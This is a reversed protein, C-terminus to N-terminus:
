CYLHQDCIVLVSCSLHRLILSSVSNKFIPPSTKWLKCSPDYSGMIEFEPNRHGGKSWQLSWTVVHCMNMCVPLISMNMIFKLIFVVALLFHHGQLGVAWFALVTNIGHIFARRPLITFGEALSWFVFYPHIETCCCISSLYLITM